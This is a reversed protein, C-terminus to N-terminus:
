FLAPIPTPKKGRLFDKLNFKPRRVPGQLREVIRDCYDREREIGISQCGMARAAMLTTGSGAFPDLVTHPQVKSVALCWEMVPQPKQTPHLRVERQTPDEQLMGHWRWKIRRVAMTLNTWALECDAFDNLGNDKDWVLWCSTPPLPYYNGGFIIAYTGADICSQLLPMPVPQDDWSKQGYDQSTTLKSRSSNQRGAEGIGYPPDTLVLEVRPLAPVIEAADAHYLTVQADQYYPRPLNM